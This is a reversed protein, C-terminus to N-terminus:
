GMNINLYKKELENNHCDVADALFKLTIKKDKIYKNINFNSTAFEKKKGLLSEVYKYLVVEDKTEIIKIIEKETKGEEELRVVFKLLKEFRSLISQLRSTDMYNMIVLGTRQKLDPGFQKQLLPYSTKEKKFRRLVINIRGEGYGKFLEYLSKISLNYNM